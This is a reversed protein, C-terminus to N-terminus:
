RQLDIGLVDRIATKADKQTERMHKRVEQLKADVLFRYWFGQLVHFARGEKSDLFGLRLVFRYLFYFLARLQGPPAAWPRCLAM